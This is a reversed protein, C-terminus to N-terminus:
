KTESDPKQREFLTVYGDDEVVFLETDERDGLDKEVIFRDRAELLQRVVNMNPIDIAIIRDILESMNAEHIGFMGEAPLRSPIEGVALHGPLEETNFKFEGGIIVTSM